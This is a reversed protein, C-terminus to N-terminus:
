EGDRVCLQHPRQIEVVGALRGVREQSEADM